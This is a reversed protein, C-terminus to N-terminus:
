LSYPYAYAEIVTGSGDVVFLRASDSTGWLEFALLYNSGTMQRVDSLRLVPTWPRLPALDIAHSQGGDGDGNRGRERAENHLAWCRYIGAIVAPPVPQPRAPLRSIYGDFMPLKGSLYTCGRDNWVGRTFWGALAALGLSVAIAIGFVTRIM